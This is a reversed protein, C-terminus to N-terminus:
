GKDKQRLRIQDLAPAPFWIIGLFVVVVLVLVVLVLVVLVLVVVVVVQVQVLVLLLLILLVEEEVGACCPGGRDRRCLM